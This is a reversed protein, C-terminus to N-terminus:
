FPLEEDEIAEFGDPVSEPMGKLPQDEPIKFNGDRIDKVTKYGRRPKTSWLVKGERNEYQERGFLVGILRGKFCSAFQDGWQIEFGANSEVVADTFAKFYGNTNGDKNETVQYIVCPWQKDDRASAKYAQEFRGQEEGEAIDIAINIMPNGSKSKTEKIGVIKCVYGGAPLPEYNGYAQATDFDKPKQM